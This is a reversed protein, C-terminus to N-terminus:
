RRWRDLADSTRRKDCVPGACCRGDELMIDPLIIVQGMDHMELVIGDDSHIDETQPLPRCRKSIAPIGSGCGMAIPGTGPADPNQVIPPAMDNRNSFYIGAM